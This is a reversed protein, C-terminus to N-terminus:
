RTVPGCGPSGCCAIGLLRDRDILGSVAFGLSLEAGESTHGGVLAVKADRLVEMAGAMMQTLTDEIKAEIGYPVTAIALASQPESGM